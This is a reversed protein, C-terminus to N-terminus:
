RKFLTDLLGAVDPEICGRQTPALREAVPASSAFFIRVSERSPAIVLEDGPKAGLDTLVHSIRGLDVLRSVNGLRWILSVFHETGEVQVTLSDGPRLGGAQAVAAPLGASFGRLYREEVRVRVAWSGDTLLVANPVQEVDGFHKAAVEEPKALRVRASEVIFQPTDIYAQVSVESVGFTSPIERLLREVTTSGGDQEIRQIIEMRIGDYPDTVWERFAWREKDARCVGEIGSLYSSARDITTGALDAIEAKTSPAGLIALSALVRARVSDNWIWRNRLRVLGVNEILYADREDELPFHKACGAQIADDPVLGRTKGADRLSVNLRALDDIMEEIIAWQGQIEYGGTRLLAREVILRQEPTADGCMAGALRSITSTRVASGVHARIWGAIPGLVPQTTACFSAIANTEIQRARERSVSFESALEALTAKTENTAFYRADLVRRQRPELDSLGSIVSAVPDFFSFSALALSRLSTSAAVESTGTHELLQRLNIAALDALTQVGLIYNAAVLLKELLSPTPSGTAAIPPDQPERRCVARARSQLARLAKIKKRGVGKYSTVALIDADALDKITKVGAYAKLKTLTTEVLSPPNLASLPQEPLLSCRALISPDTPPASSREPSDSHPPDDGRIPREPLSQRLTEVAQLVNPSTGSDPGQSAAREGTCIRRAQKQLLALAVLDARVLGRVRAAARLDLEALDKVTAAVQRTELKRLTKALSWSACLEWFTSDPMVRQDHEAM